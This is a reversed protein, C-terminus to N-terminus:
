RPPVPPNTANLLPRSWSWGDAPRRIDTVLSLRHETRDKTARATVIVHDGVNLSTAKAEPNRALQSFSLWEVTYEGDAAKVTVVVHPNAYLVRSVDGEISVPHERDFAAYSHHASLTSSTNLQAATLAIITFGLIRPM